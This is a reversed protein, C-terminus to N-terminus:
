LQSKLYYVPNKGAVYNVIVGVGEVVIWVFMWVRVIAVVLLDM